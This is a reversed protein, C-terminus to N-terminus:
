LVQHSASELLNISRPVTITYSQLPIPHKNQKTRKPCPRKTYGQSDQLLARSVLSVEPEYADGQGEEWTSPNLHACQWWGAWFYSNRVHM